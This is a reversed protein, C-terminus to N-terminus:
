DTLGLYDSLWDTLTLCDTLSQYKFTMETQWAIEREKKRKKTKLDSQISSSKSSIEKLHKREISSKSVTTKNDISLPCYSPIATVFSHCNYM